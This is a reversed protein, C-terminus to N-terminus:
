SVSESYNNKMIDSKNYELVNKLDSILYRTSEAIIKISDLESKMSIYEAEAAKTLRGSVQYAMNASSGSAVQERYIHEKDNEFGANYEGVTIQYEAMIDALEANLISLRPIYKAVLNYNNKVLAEKARNRNDVIKKLIEVLNSDAESTGFIKKVANAIESPKNFAGM